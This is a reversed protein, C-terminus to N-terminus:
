EDPACAEVGAVLMLLVVHHFVALSVQYLRRWNRAHNLHMFRHM